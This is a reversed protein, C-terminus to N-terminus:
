TAAASSPRRGRRSSCRWSSPSSSSSARPTLAPGRARGAPASRPRRREARARTHTHTRAARRARLPLASREHPARWASRRSATALPQTCSSNFPPPPPIQSHHRACSCPPSAAHWTGMHPSPRPSTSQPRASLTRARACIGSKHGAITRQTRFMRELIRAGPFMTCRRSCPRLNPDWMITSYSRMVM